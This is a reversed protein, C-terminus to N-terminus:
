CYSDGANDFKISLPIPGGSPFVLRVWRLIEERNCDEIQAIGSNPDVHFRTVLYDRFILDDLSEPEKSWACMETVHIEGETRTGEPSHLAIFLKRSTSTVAGAKASVEPPLLESLYSM